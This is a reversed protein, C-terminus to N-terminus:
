SLDSDGPGRLRRFDASHLGHKRLLRQLASRLMGSQDAAGTVNGQNRKLLDALYAREFTGVVSRKAERFRRGALGEAETPRADGFLDPPLNSLRVVGDTALIVAAEVAGRLQAVNGPWPHTELATMAEPAVTLPPLGNLRCLEEIFAKVLIPIDSRRERLPPVRVISGAFAESLSRLLRGEDVLVDPDAITSAVIRPRLTASALAAALTEQTPWPVADLSAVFVTSGDGNLAADLAARDGPPVVVFEGTEASL